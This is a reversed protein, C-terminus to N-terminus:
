DREELVIRFGNSIKLIIDAQLQFDSEKMNSRVHYKRIITSLLVKLMLMAYKRGEILVKIELIKRLCLEISRVWVVGQDLM